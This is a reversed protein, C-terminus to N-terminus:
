FYNMLFPSQGFTPLYFVGEVGPNASHGFPALRPEDLVQVNSEGLDYNAELANVGQLISETYLYISRRHHCLFTKQENTSQCGPQETGANPYFDVTGIPPFAPVYIGAHYVDVFDAFDGVFNLKTRNTIYPDFVTMRPVKTALRGNLYKAVSTAVEAGACHAIFQPNQVEFSILIEGVHQGLSEALDLADAFTISHKTWDIYVFFINAPGEQFLATRLAFYPKTSDRSPHGNFMVYTKATPDVQQLVFERKEHSVLMGTKPERYLFVQVLTEEKSLFDVNAFRMTAESSKKKQEYAADPAGEHAWGCSLLACIWWLIPSM